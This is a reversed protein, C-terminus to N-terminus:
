KVMDLDNNEVTEIMEKIREEIRDKRKMYIFLQLNYRNQREDYLAILSMLFFIDFTISATNERLFLDLVIAMLILTSILFTYCLDKSHESLKELEEVSCDLRDKKRLQNWDTIKDKIRKM